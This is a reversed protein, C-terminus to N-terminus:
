PPAVSAPIWFIWHRVDGDGRELTLELMPPRPYRSTAMSTQPQAAPPAIPQGDPSLAPAVPLGTTPDLAAPNAVPNQGTPSMPLLSSGERLVDAAIVKENWKTIWEQLRPDFARWQLTSVDDLLAVQVPRTTNLRASPGFNVPNEEYSLVVSRAGSDSEEVTFTITGPTAADFPSLANGVELLQSSSGFGKQPRISILADAPLRNFLTECLEVFKQTRLERDQEGRIADALQLSSQLIGFIGAVLLAVIFLTIATELLTFGSSRARRVPPQPHLTM